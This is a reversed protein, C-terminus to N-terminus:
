AVAQQASERILGIEKGFETILEMAETPYAWHRAVFFGESISADGTKIWEVICRVLSHLTGGHHFGKIARSPNSVYMWKLKWENLLWLKGDTAIRFKAFQRGREDDHPYCFYGRGTLALVKLFHNALEIRQYRNDGLTPGRVEVLRGGIRMTKHTM